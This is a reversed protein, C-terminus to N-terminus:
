AITPTNVMLVPQASRPGFYDRNQSETGHRCLGPTKRFFAGDRARSKMTSTVDRHVETERVIGSLRSMERYRTM